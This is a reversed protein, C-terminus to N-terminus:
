KRLGLRAQWDDCSGSTARQRERIYRRTGPTDKWYEEQTAGNVLKVRNKVVANRVVTVNCRNPESSLDPADRTAMM